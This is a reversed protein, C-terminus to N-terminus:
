MLTPRCPDKGKFYNQRGNHRIKGVGGGGGGINCSRDSSTVSCEGVITDCALLDHDRPARGM